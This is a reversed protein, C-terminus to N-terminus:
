TWFDQHYEFKAKEKIVQLYSHLKQSFQYEPFIYMGWLHSALMVDKITLVDSEYFPTLKTEILQTTKEFSRLYKEKDQILKNIAGM